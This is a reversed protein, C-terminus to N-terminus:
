GSLIRQSISYAGAIGTAYQYVYYDVYLHGFTAWTIGVRDPDMRMESGYAESFYCACLENLYQATLGQGNEIRQHSELELRALTPMILFYRYFNAMAEEIVTIRFAPDDFRELLHARVMAQHFNSAVEAVFMSYSSYVPPQNQWTLYSHMSHGLEHALTSLSFLTDNYSMVIFPHTGHVGSSFAGGRKGQNPYIDVWREESCGRRIAATYDKGLPELGACIWEVAQDYAVHPRNPTLPAWIDYAELPDVELAQRRIRWYRHWLPLNAQFTNLLNHFITAPIQFEFLAAELSSEYNHAHALFVNQKISTELTSALTNQHALYLDLYNEWAMRRVNRDPDTLLRPWTGQTLDIEEGHRNIAPNFRFDANTLMRFAAATGAFPDKVHGLITELDLSRTHAQKRFGDEIFHRYSQLSAYEAMWSRVTDQGITLLLPNLAALLSQAKALLSRAQSAHEVAEAKTTDVSHEMAAYLYITEARNHWSFAAELIGFLQTSSEIHEPLRIEQSEFAEFLSQFEADWAAIDPYVSEANWRYRQPIEARPRNPSIEM